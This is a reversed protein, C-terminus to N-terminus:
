RLANSMHPTRTDTTPMFISVALRVEDDPNLVTIPTTEESLLVWSLGLLSGPIKAPSDGALFLERIHRTRPPRGAKARSGAFPFIPRHFAFYFGFRLFFFGM